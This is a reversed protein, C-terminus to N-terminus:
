KGRGPAELRAHTLLFEVAKESRIASKIRALEGEKTLRARLAEATLNRPRAQEELARDLDAETAEISEAQAIRELLLAVQTERVAAERGSRWVRRWDVEVGQPDIGQAVLSQLQRRLRADMQREVLVEPVPFDHRALLADLLRQRTLEKERHTRAAELHERLKAKLEELTKADSVQQAFADDLAPLLKRKVGSVRGTFAVTRGALDARHYDDPYSVSFQREEGARAGRFADNFASLTNEGGLHVGVDNLRIPDRREEPKTVVGILSALVTDGDQAPRDEVPEYTAARERLSELERDLDEDTLKICAPEVELDKYDRLDIEPLIEFTAKYRLPQATEFSLEAIAPEGVPSLNRERFATELSSPVLSRVVEGKIDEWFRRRVLEAPAKGPRFGPLRAMRTFERTVRSTEREVQDAPIEVTLERQCTEAETPM